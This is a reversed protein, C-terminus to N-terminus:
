GALLGGALGVSIAIIVTNFIFSVVGHVLTLTRMASTRTDVDSTQFTMGITYSYYAFDIFRPKQGPFDLGASKPGDAFCRHAYHAAFTTHLLTWSSLITLAALALIWGSSKNSVMDFIAFLSAGVAATLILTIAWRGEDERASWSSIEEASVPLLRAIVRAAYAVAGADWGVVTAVKPPAFVAAIGGAVVGAAACAALRLGHGRWGKM